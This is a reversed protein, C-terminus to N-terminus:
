NKQTLSDNGNDNKGLAQKTIKTYLEM